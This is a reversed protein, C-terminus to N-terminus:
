YTMERVEKIIPIFLQLFSLSIPSLVQVKLEINIEDAALKLLERTTLTAKNAPLHWTQGYAAADM